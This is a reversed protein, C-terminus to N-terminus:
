RHEQNLLLLWHEFMSSGCDHGFHVRDGSFLWPFIMTLFVDRQFNVLHISERVQLINLSNRHISLYCACPM